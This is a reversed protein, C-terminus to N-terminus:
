YFRSNHSINFIQLYFTRHLGEFWLRMFSIKNHADKQIVARIEDILFALWTGLLIFWLIIQFVHKETIFFRKLRFLHKIDKFIEEIEFRYYYIEIIAKRKRNGDNTFIYWPEDKNKPKESTILRLQYGYAKIHQDPEKLTGAPLLQEKGPEDIVAVRKGKKGRIYFTIQHEMFFTILSPLAFGRDLVFSPYFGLIKKLKKLTTQIFINQSTAETIPYTIIDFFVPIARGARTQLAFTLVQFNCFTSFDIIIISEKSVITSNKLIAYFNKGMNSNNTLRHMKSRATYRNEVVLRANSGLSSFPSFTFAQLGFKFQHIHKLSVSPIFQSNIIEISKQLINVM